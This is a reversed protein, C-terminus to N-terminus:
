QVSYHTMHSFPDYHPLPNGLLLTAADALQLPLNDLHTLFDISVINIGLSNISRNIKHKSFVLLLFTTM